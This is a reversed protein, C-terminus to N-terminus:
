KVHFHDVVVKLKNQNAKMLGKGHEGKWWVQSEDPRRPLEFM